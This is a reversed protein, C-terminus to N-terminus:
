VCRKGGKGLIRLIGSRNAVDYNKLGLAESIRLGCGFILLVLANDRAAIWPNEADIEKIESTMNQVDSADIAKSLKRPIKPSSILGIADNTIKYQRSLFRIFSRISSLARANSKNALGRKQRDALWSRFGITDIRSIDNLQIANGCFRTYFSFFDELDRVYADSTHQSYKKTNLLYNIFQGLENNM